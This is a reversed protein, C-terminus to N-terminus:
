VGLTKPHQSLSYWILFIKLNICFDSRPVVLFGGTLCLLFTQPTHIWRGFQFLWSLICLCHYTFLHMNFRVFSLGPTSATWLGAYNAFLLVAQTLLLFALQPASSAQPPTFYSLLSIQQWPPSCRESDVQSYDIKPQHSTIGRPTKSVSM